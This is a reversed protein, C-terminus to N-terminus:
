LVKAKDELTILLKYLTSENEYECKRKEYTSCAGNTNYSDHWAYALLAPFGEVKAGCEEAERVSQGISEEARRTPIVSLADAM